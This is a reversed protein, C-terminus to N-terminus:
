WSVSPNVEGKLIKGLSDFGTQGPGAMWVAGNISDYEELWGLEMANASNVVIIVNDFESTVREVMATERGTLELYHKSPDIDEPNSSYRVGHVGKWGGVNEFTNEDTLSTPLDAGEGGSRAIVVVATDSFEKANEFIGAADYDAMSPEPVTWDQGNMGITPRTTEYATYFDSLTTNLEFGANELGKLLTICTTTDVSGSGTGGYIPNTSAWGFVNLKTVDALPLANDDNKLLVIGENAIDKVLQESDAITGETLYYQDGFTNNLLAYEPGMCIVNATIAIALIVAVGGQAQILGRLPKKIKVAAIVVVIAIVIVVAMTILYNSLAMATTVVDDMTLVVSRSALYSQVGMVAAAILAIIVAVIILPKLWKKEKM